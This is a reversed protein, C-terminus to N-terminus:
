GIGSGECAHNRSQMTGNRGDRCRELLISFFGGAASATARSSCILNGGRGALEALREQRPVRKKELVQRGQVM